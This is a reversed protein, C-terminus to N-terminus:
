IPHMNCGPVSDPGGNWGALCGHMRRQSHEITAEYPPRHACAGRVTSLSPRMHHGILVPAESQATLGDLMLGPMDARHLRCM